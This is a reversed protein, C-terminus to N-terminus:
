FNMLFDKLLIKWKSFGKSVREHGKKFIIICSNIRLDQQISLEGYFDMLFGWYRVYFKLKQPHISWMSYWIYRQWHLCHWISGLLVYAYCINIGLTKKKFSLRIIFIFFFHTHTIIWRTCQFEFKFGGAGSRMDCIYM